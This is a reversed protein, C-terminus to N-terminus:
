ELTLYGVAYTNFFIWIEFSSVLKPVTSMTSSSFFVVLSFLTPCIGDVREGKREGKGRMRSLFAAVQLVRFM